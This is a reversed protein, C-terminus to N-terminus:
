RTELWVSWLVSPLLWCRIGKVSTSNGIAMSPWRREWLHHLWGSVDRDLAQVSRCRTVEDLHLGMDLIKKKLARALHGCRVM